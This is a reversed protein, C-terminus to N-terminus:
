PWDGLDSTTKRTEASDRRLVEEKLAVDRAISKQTASCVKGMGGQGLVSEIEYDLESSLGTRIGVSLRPLSINTDQESDAPISVYTRTM